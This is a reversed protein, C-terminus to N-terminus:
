ELSTLHKRATNAAVHAKEAIEPATHPQDVTVAVSQVRDFATTTEVWTELHESDIEDDPTTTM